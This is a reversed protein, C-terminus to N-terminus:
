VENVDGIILGEKSRDDANRVNKKRPHKGVVLQMLLGLSSLYINQLMKEQKEEKKPSKIFSFKVQLDIKLLGSM